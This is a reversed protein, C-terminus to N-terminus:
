WEFAKVAASTSWSNIAKALSQLEIPVGVEGHNTVELRGRAIGAAQPILDGIPRIIRKAHFYFFPIALLVIAISLYFFSFLFSGNIFDLIANGASLM